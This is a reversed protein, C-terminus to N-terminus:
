PWGGGGVGPFGAMKQEFVTDIVIVNEKRENEM